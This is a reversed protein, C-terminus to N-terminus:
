AKRQEAFDAARRRREEAWAESPQGRMDPWDVLVMCAPCRGSLELETGCTRHFMQTAPGGAVPKCWQEGWTRLALIVPMLGRGKTTLQYEYRPPRQSYARREVVGNAELRKLRAALMQSSAGTQAQLDQFRSQGMLLERVILISWRDGVLGTSHAVPCLTADGYDSESASM